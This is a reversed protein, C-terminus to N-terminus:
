SVFDYKFLCPIIGNRHHNDSATSTFVSDLIAGLSSPGAIDWSPSSQEGEYGKETM